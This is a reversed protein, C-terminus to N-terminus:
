LYMRVNGLCNVDKVGLRSVVLVRDLQGFVSKRMREVVPDVLDSVARDRNPSDLLAIQM